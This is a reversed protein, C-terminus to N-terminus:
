QILSSIYSSPLFCKTTANTFLKQLTTLVCDYWLLRSLSRSDLPLIFLTAAQLSVSYLPLPSSCHGAFLLFNSIYTIISLLHGLPILSTPILSKHSSNPRLSSFSIFITHIYTLKHTCPFFNLSNVGSSWQTRHLTSLQNEALLLLSPTSSPSGNATIKFNQTFLLFQGPVVILLVLYYQYERYYFVIYKLIPHIKTYFDSSPQWSYM